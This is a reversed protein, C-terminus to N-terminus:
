CFSLSHLEFKAVSRGGGRDGRRPLDGRSEGDVGKRAEDFGASHGGEAIPRMRIRM